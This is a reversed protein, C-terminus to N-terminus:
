NYQKTKIRHLQIIEEYIKSVLRKDSISDAFRKEWEVTRRKIKSITGKATHFINLKM